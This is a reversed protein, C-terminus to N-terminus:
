GSVNRDTERLLLALGKKVSEHIPQFGTVEKHIVQIALNLKIGRNDLERYFASKEQRYAERIRRKLLNRYM